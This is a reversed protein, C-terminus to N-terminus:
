AAVLTLALGLAGVGAVVAVRRAALPAEARLVAAAGLLMALGVAADLWDALRWEVPLTSPTAWRVLALWDADMTGFLWRGLPPTALTGVGVLAAAGVVLRGPRTSWAAAAADGAWVLVGALAMVPHLVAAAALLAAAALRRGALLR